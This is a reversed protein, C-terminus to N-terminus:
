PAVNSSIGQLIQRAKELLTDRTEHESTWARREAHWQKMRTWFEHRRRVIFSRLVAAKIVNPVSRRTGPEDGAVRDLVRECISGAYESDATITVKRPAPAKASPVLSPAGGSESRIWQTIFVMVQNEIKSQMRRWFTQITSVARRFHRLVVVLVSQKAVDPAM